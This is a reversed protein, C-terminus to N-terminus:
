SVSELNDDIMAQIMNFVQDFASFAEVPLSPVIVDAFHKKGSGVDKFHTEDPLDQQVNQSGVRATLKKLNLKLKVGDVETTLYSDEFMFEIPLNQYKKCEERFDPAPLCAAYSQGHMGKKVSFGNITCEVFNKDLKYEKVGEADYDFLGIVTNPHDAAVGKLRIALRQAGGDGSGANEGGTECSRIEFNMEHDYLKEWATKLILADTRGETLVLPTTIAALEEKLVKLQAEAAKARGEIAAVNKLAEAVAPLYFGQAIAESVDFKELERGQTVKSLNKEDKDVYYKAADKSELLYFSPSHTTIFVQTRPSQALSLFRSAESQAAVFDLSNEPEEFGWIHYDYSDNESIFALLEPIHRVKIGDGRQRTLSKPSIEVSALTEFDLTQFLQSLQTPAGIKTSGSVESPLTQFLNSTLNQLHTSFDQVAAEFPENSAVTEHIMALLMEFIHIDKIAPIYIFRIKNLLRTVIHRRNSKIHSSFEELYDQGRSVTWQRKVFFKPGLSRQYSSPTNFTIKVYLFKRVDESQESERLRQECFDIPFEFPHSHDPGGSFFLNLARVVNSKGSDNKGFIVSLDKLNRLKIKYFSRFYSIEIEEILQLRFALEDIEQFCTVGKLCLM